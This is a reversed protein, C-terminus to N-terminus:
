LVEGWGQYLPQDLTIVPVQSPHLKDVAQKIVDMSHRIMAVSKSDDQFLPLMATITPLCSHVELQSAHYAAWSINSDYTVDQMYKEEVNNLWETENQSAQDFIHFNNNLPFDAEPLKVDKKPLVLPQVNTYSDPLEFLTNCPLLEEDSTEIHSECRGENDPTPYQFLSIGTGHFSDAATTSSPNHDINDIAATIFLGPRLNPPCVLQEAHYKQCIRNNMLTSIEMVRDYSISLGLHFLSDILDRKRTKAHVTVGLYIPLPTERSKNHYIGTSGERRRKSSNFQLLQAISLTAQTKYKSNINPGHLIMDVLALLSQPVANTQCDKDFSGIFKMNRDLMDKRVISAARALCIADSDYNDDCMKRLAPGMDNEFALLVDRGERYAKLEPIQALIRNKLET